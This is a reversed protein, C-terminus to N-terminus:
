PRAQASGRLTSLAVCGLALAALISLWMTAQDYPQWQYKRMTIPVLPNFLLAILVGLITVPWWRYIYFRYAALGWSLFTAWRLHEYYEYGGVRRYRYGYHHYGGHYVGSRSLYYAAVVLLIIAIGDVILGGRRDPQVTPTTPTSAM